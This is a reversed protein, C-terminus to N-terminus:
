VKRPTEARGKLELKCRTSLGMAKCPSPCSVSCVCLVCDQM